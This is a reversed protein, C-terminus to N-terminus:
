SSQSPDRWGMHNNAHQKLFGYLEQNTMVEKVPIKPADDDTNRKSQHVLSPVTEELLFEQFPERSWFENYQLFFERQLEQNEEDPVWHVGATDQHPQNGVPPRRQGHIEPPHVANGSAFPCKEPSDDILITNNANWLPFARWFDDLRKEFIVESFGRPKGQGKELSGTASSDKTPKPPYVANCNSQAWVCILRKQVEPPFLLKLMSNATKRQASTWVALAFNQDLWELFPIWDTRPVIPTGAAKGISPRLQVGPPEKHKRSRHCLIGNLDLILLPKVRITLEGSTYPPNPPFLRRSQELSSSTVLRVRHVTDGQHLPEDM